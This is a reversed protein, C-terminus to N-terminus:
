KWLHSLSDDEVTQMKEGLNLIIQDRLYTPFFFFIVVSDSKALNKEDADCCKMCHELRLVAGDAVM